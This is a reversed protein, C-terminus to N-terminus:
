KKLIIKEQLATVLMVQDGCLFCILLTRLRYFTGFLESWVKYCTGRKGLHDFEILITEGPVACPTLLLFIPVFRARALASWNLSPMPDSTYINDVTLDLVPTKDQARDHETRLILSVSHIFTSKIRLDKSCLRWMNWINHVHLSKCIETLLHWFKVIAEGM